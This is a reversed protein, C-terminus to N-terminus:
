NASIAAHSLTLDSAKRADVLFKEFDLSARQYESPIPM